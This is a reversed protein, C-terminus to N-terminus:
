VCGAGADLKVQAQSRAPGAQLRATAAVMAGVGRPYGKAPKTADFEITM